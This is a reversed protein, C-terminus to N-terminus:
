HPAERYPLHILDVEDRLTEWSTRNLGRHGQIKLDYISWQKKTVSAQISLGWPNPKSTSKCSCFM